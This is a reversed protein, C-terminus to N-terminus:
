SDIMVCKAFRALPPGAMTMDHEPAKVPVETDVEAESKGFGPDDSDFMQLIVRNGTELRANECYISLCSRAM